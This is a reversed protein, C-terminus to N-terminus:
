YHATSLCELRGLIFLLLVGLCSHGYHVLLDCGLARASFDDVCCAGYTVDGLVVTEAETFQEILDCIACAWMALGEPLQLAVRQVNFKQIHWITKHVEFSYNSPLLSAIALNLTANNTIEPPIQSVPAPAPKGTSSSSSPGTRGVFRRRPKPPATPESAPPAVQSDTSAAM